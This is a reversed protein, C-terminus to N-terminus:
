EPIVMTCILAYTPLGTPDSFLFYDVKGAESMFITMQDGNLEHTLWYDEYTSNTNPNYNNWSAGGMPKGPVTVTALSAASLDTYTLLYIYRPAQAEGWEDIIAQAYEGNHKELTAMSGVYQPYVFEFPAKAEIDADPDYIIHFACQNVLSEGDAGLVQLIVVVEDKATCAKTYVYFNPAAGEVSIKGKYEGFTAPDIAIAGWYETKGTIYLMRDNTLVQYVETVNYNSSIAMYLESNQDMSSIVGIGSAIQYETGSSEGTYAPDFVVLVAALINDNEGYFVAATHTASAPVENMNFRGETNGGFGAFSIWCADNESIEQSFVGMPYDTDAYLKVYSYPESVKFSGEDGSWEGTYTIKHYVPATPFDWQLVNDEAKPDLTSFYTGVEARLEEPSTPTIYPPVEGAQTLRGVYYPAYEANFGCEPDNMDCIEEATVDAMSAPFVFLDAYRAEGSNETVGITFDVTKLLADDYYEGREIIVWDAYAIDHYQGKWELARIVAGEMGLVYAVATGEVYSGNPLLVEGAMNFETSNLECEIRDGFAPLKVTLETVANDNSSDIFRVKEEAGNKVTEDLVATLLMDVTGAAGSTVETKGDVTYARLWSPLALDWAYNAVVRVPLSYTPVGTFTLLEASTVKSTGFDDTFGEEDAVGAYIDMSRNLSPRTLTAIKKKEDGMALYVDCVRNVDFEEDKSFVVTFVVKEAKNGSIRSAKMGSDDIWFYNMVGDGELTVDWAMNPEISIEVSEGAAVTKNLVSTPFSPVENKQPDTLDCSVVAMFGLVLAAAYKFINRKM